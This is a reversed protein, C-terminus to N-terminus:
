TAKDSAGAPDAIVEFVDLGFKMFEGIQCARVSGKRFVIMSKGQVQLHLNPWQLLAQRRQRTLFERISPEHTGRLQFRKSFEADDEFNIDHKGVMQALKSFFGEPEMEFGPAQIRPSHIMCVSFRHTQKNKGAGTSFTHDFLQLQIDETDAHIVSSSLKGSGRRALSFQMFRNAITENFRDRFELGLSEAAARIQKVRFHEFVFFAIGGLVVLIFFGAVIWDVPIPM